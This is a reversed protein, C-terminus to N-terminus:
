TESIEVVGENETKNQENKIQNTLFGNHYQTMFYGENRIRNKIKINRLLM